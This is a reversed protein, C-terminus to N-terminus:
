FKLEPENHSLVGKRTHLTWTGNKGKLTDSHIPKLSLRCSVMSKGMLYTTEQLKERFGIWQTDRVDM